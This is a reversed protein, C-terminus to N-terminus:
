FTLTATVTDTDTYAGIAVGTNANALINAYVSYSQGGTQDATNGSRGAIASVGNTDWGKGTGTDQFLGYKVTDNDGNKMTRNANDGNFAVKYSIGKTCAVNLKGEGTKLNGNQVETASKTGFDLDGGGAFSCTGTVNLKVNFSATKTDAAANGAAITAIVALALTNLKTNM